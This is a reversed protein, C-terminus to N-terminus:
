DAFLRKKISAFVQVGNVVSRLSSPSELADLLVRLEKVNMEFYCEFREVNGDVWDGDVGGSRPLNYLELINYRLPNSDKWIRRETLFNRTVQPLDESSKYAPTSSCTGFM